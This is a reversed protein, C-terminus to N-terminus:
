STSGAWGRRCAPRPANAPLESHGPYTVLFDQVAPQERLWKALLVVLFLVVVAAM